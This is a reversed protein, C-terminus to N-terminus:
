QERYYAEKVAGGFTCICKQTSIYGIQSCFIVFIISFNNKPRNM